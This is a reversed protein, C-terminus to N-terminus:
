TSEGDLILMRQILNTGLLCLGGYKQVLAVDEADVAPRVLEDLFRECTAKKDFAIPSRNRSVFAPSFCLLEGGNKLSFVGNVLHIRRERQVFAGRREVIGRLHAAINNLRADNRQKELWFCNMQRSAELLRDSLHRKILDISIEEYIGTEGNYS